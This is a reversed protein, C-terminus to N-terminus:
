SPDLTFLGALAAGTQYFLSQVAARALEPLERAEAAAAMFQNLASLEDATWRPGPRCATPGDAVTARDAVTSGRVGSASKSPEPLQFRFQVGGIRIVNGDALEAVQNVRADDIRTGNLGFDRLLWRGNEFFVRAHLRSAQDEHPLVVTNDRSRGISIPREPALDVANPRADGDVVALRARM